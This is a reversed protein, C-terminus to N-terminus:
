LKGRRLRHLIFRGPDVADVLAREVPLPEGHLQSALLEAALLTWSLGRSAFAFAGYLGPIRPLDAFHAGSLAAAARRATAVDVMAGVMPMRDTAVCRFGVGGEHGGSPVRTTSGPLMHEVRAINLAHSREDSAAHTSDLDYTAGCVATGDCEPMVYGDGAVVVRPAAFPPTALYTQQGRVRRLSDVGIDVLRAVDGANALVVVPAEAVIAGIADLARWRADVYELAHIERGLHLSLRANAANLQHRVIASPAVWGAHPFWWGGVGVDRGAIVGAADRTVYHAYDQPYAHQDATEAVRVENDPGDALQLVGCHRWPPVVRSDLSAPWQRQSYLFGARTLRSLLCDDRSVHPQYVGARLASTATAPASGRDVLDIDWGRAVLRSAVAAGALGAGIVMARQEPLSPSSHREPPTPWRPAYRGVLMDRKAGFGPRRDAGFGAAHLADRVNRAVCWTALTAGLKAMRALTKMTRASWMEPNREPAFGDLYFADADLLLQPLAAVDAFVLTLTVRGDDFHIRHMGPVLTPWTARLEASLQAFDPYRAHALALDAASFPHREISVFHLSACRRPDQRWVGWTALFNLGLGFGTEVICFVKAGAWRAPLENGRLFVHLAQGPGSAASHYVDGFEPSIPTGSEDFALLAPRLPPARNNGASLMESSQAHKM